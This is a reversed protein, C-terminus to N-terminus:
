VSLSEIKEAVAKELPLGSGRLYSFAARYFSLAEVKKSQLQCSEALYYYIRVWEYKELKKGKAKQLAKRYHRESEAYDKKRNFYLSALRDELQWAEPNDSVAKKLVVMADGTKDFESDLWYATALIAELNHPDLAASLAFFPLMEKRKEQSLHFHEHSRVQGNVKAIWDLVEEHDHSGDEEHDHDIAGEQLASEEHEHFKEIVGGHYYEDAKLFMADGIIEKSSGLIRELPNAPGFAEAELEFKKGIFSALFISSILLFIAAFYRFNM